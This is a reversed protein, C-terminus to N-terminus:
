RGFHIRLGLHDGGAARVYEMSVPPIIRIRAMWNTRRGLLEGSLQVRFPTELSAGVFEKMPSTGYGAHLRVAGLLREGVETLRLTKTLALYASRGEFGSNPVDRIGVAIGPALNNTFAESIVSYHLSATAREDGYLRYSSLELELGLDEKPLGVHIWRLRDGSTTKWLSRVTVEGPLTIRGTPALVLRDAFVVQSMLLVIATALHKTWSM